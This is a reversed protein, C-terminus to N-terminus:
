GACQRCEQRRPQSAPSCTETFPRTRGLAVPDLPFGVRDIRGNIGLLPREAETAHPAQRSALLPPQNVASRADRCAFERTYLSASPQVAKRLPTCPVHVTYLARSRHVAWTFSTCRAQVGCLDDIRHLCAGSRRVSRRAGRVADSFRSRPPQFTFPAASAHVPRRNM